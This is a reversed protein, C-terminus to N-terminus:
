GLRYQNDIMRTLFICVESVFAQVKQSLTTLEGALESSKRRNSFYAKLSSFVFGQKREM